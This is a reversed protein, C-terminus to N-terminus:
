GEDLSGGVDEGKAQGTTALGVEEGGQTAFEDQAVGPTDEKSGGEFDHALEECGFALEPQFFFELFEVAVFHEDEVVDAVQLLAAFFHFHEEGQKRLAVLTAADQQTRVEDEALPILDEFVGHGGHCRHVPEHVM